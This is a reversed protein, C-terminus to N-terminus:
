KVSDKRSDKRLADHCRLMSGERWESVATLGGDGGAHDRCESRGGPRLVYQELLLPARRRVMLCSDPDRLTMWLEAQSSSGAGVPCLRVKSACSVLLPFSCSCCSIDGLGVSVLESCFCVNDPMSMFLVAQLGIVFDSCLDSLASANNGSTYGGSSLLLLSSTASPNPSSPPRLSCRCLAISLMRSSWRSWPGAARRLGLSCSSCLM